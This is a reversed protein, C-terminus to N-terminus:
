SAPPPSASPMASPAPNAAPVPAPPDKRFLVVLIVGVLLLVFAGIALYWGVGPGWTLTGQIGFRGSSSSGFLSSWPGSGSHNPSDNGIAGPLAVAFVGVAAVALIMAVVALAMAPGTKRSVLGIIAGIFGLIIGAIAIFYVAEMLNGTNNATETKYSTESLCSAGAPLGSCTYQITGNSSPVGLYANQTVTIGNGSFQETYWPTFVAAILLVAGVLIIVAAILRGVKVNRM